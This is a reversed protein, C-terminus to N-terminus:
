RPAANPQPDPAQPILGDAEQLLRRAFVWDRWCWSDLGCNLGRQALRKAKDLESRAMTVDGLKHLSMALIARDQVTPIAIYKSAGLSRRCWDLAQAYNGRRCEFLGLCMLDSSSPTTAGEKIPEASAVARTLVRVFPELSAAPTDSTPRLLVIKMVYLATDENTTGKFRNLVAERLRAFGTENGLKLLALAEHYYDGSSRWDDPQHFQLVDEFRNRAKEWEGRIAHWEGLARFLPYLSADTYKSANNSKSTSDLTHDSQALLENCERMLLDAIMWEYWPGELDEPAGPFLASPATEFKLGQQSRAQILEYAVTWDVVATQYNSSRWNSLAKILSVTAVAAANANYAPYKECRYCWDLAKPFYGERYELLALVESWQAAHPPNPRMENDNPFRKEVEEEGVTFLQLMNPDPPLLLAAKFTCYDSALNTLGLKAVESRRFEEYGPRNGSKLFAVIL